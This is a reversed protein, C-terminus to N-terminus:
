ENRLHEKNNFTLIHFRGNRLALRYLTFNHHPFDDMHYLPLDLLTALFIRLARGHMCILVLREARAYWQETFRLLRQQVELPSEGQPAAKGYMNQKWAQLLQQYTERFETRATKGEFIGWSIEDLDPTEVWQIGQDIFSQVSQKSRLLTSTYVTEFPIHGYRQYFRRAQERGNDNLPPDVGRGQVIGQRNFDTEGHRVIYLERYGPNMARKRAALIPWRRNTAIEAAM